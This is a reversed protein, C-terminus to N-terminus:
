ATVPRSWDVYVGTNGWLRTLGLKLDALSNVPKIVYNKFDCLSYQPASIEHETNLFAEVESQKAADELMVKVQKSALHYEIYGNDNQYHIAVRYLQEM